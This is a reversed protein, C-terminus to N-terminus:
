SSLRLWWVALCCCRPSRHRAVAFNAAHSAVFMALDQVSPFWTGGSAFAEFAVCGVIFSAMAVIWWWLLLMARGRRMAWIALNLAVALNTVCVMVEAALPLTNALPGLAESVGVPGMHAGEM